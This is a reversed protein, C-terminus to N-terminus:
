QCVTQRPSLYRECNPMGLCKHSLQSLQEPGISGTIKEFANNPTKQFMPLKTQHMALDRKATYQMRVCVYMCIGKVILRFPHGITVPIFCITYCLAITLYLIIGVAAIGAVPWCEPNLMNESCIMCNITSCFPQAPCITEVTIFNHMTKIEWRAEYEYLLDKSPLNVVRNMPPGQEKVCFKNVCLESAQADPSHLYVGQSRCEIIHRLANVNEAVITSNSAGATVAISMITILLQLCPSSM